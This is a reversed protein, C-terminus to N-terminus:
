WHICIGANSPIFMLCVRSPPTCYCFLLWHACLSIFSIADLCLFVTINHSHHSVPMLKGSFHHLYHSINLVWSSVSSFLRRLNGSSSYPLQDLHGWSTRELRLWETIRSNKWQKRWHKKKWGGISSSIGTKSKRWAAALNWMLFFM